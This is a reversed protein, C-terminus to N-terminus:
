DASRPLQELRWERETVLLTTRRGIALSLPDAEHGFPLGVIAPLRLRDAWAALVEQVTPEESGAPMSCPFSGFVLGAIGTLAGAQHLQELCRDVAYAREDIDELCLVSGRLDPMAPTGVLAALVRLCAAYCPGDIHGSRLPRVEPMTSGDVQQGQGLWLARLSSRARPGHRTAPMFAHYSEGWGRRWWIAHLVSVDSYGILRPAPGSRTLLEPALHQCGHGGRLPWWAAAAFADDLTVARVPAPMWRGPGFPQLDESRPAAALGLLGALDALDAAPSLPAALAYAPCSFFCTHLQPHM